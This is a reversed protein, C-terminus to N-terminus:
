TFLHAYQQEREGALYAAIEQEIKVTISQASKKTSATCYLCFPSEAVGCKKHGQVSSLDWYANCLCGSRSARNKYSVRNWSNGYLKKAVRELRASSLCGSDTTWGRLQHVQAVCCTFLSMNYEAAIGSFDHIIRNIEESNTEITAINFSNFRELIHEYKGELLNSTLLFKTEIYKVGIESFPKIISEFTKVGANTLIQGKPDKIKMIPDYRLVVAEPDILGADVVKKLEAAVEQAKQIGIEMFTGGFGTVTLELGVVAQNSKYCEIAERLKKNKLFMEVPGKTWFVVAPIITPDLHKVPIRSGRGLYAPKEGLLVEGALTPFNRIDILRGFSCIRNDWEQETYRDIM